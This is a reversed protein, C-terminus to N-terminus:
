RAILPGDETSITSSYLVERLLFLNTSQYLDTRPKLPGRPRPTGQPPKLSPGGKDGMEGSTLM